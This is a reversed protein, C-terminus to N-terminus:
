KLPYIRKRIEDSLAEPIKIKEFNSYSYAVAIASKINHLQNAELNMRLEGFMTNLVVPYSIHKNKESIISETSYAKQVGMYIEIPKEFSVFKANIPEFIFEVEKIIEEKKNQNLNIIM